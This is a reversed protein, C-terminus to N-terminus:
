PTVVVKLAGHAKNAAMEFAKAAQSLPLRHSIIHGAREAQSALLGLALEMDARPGRQCYGQSGIICVEKLVLPFAHLPQPHPFIGLVVIRGGPRVLSIAQQLTDAEGGVTEVVVDVPRSGVHGALTSLGEDSATFAHDAGVALAAQGQHLYRNTAIVEGAGMARAALVTLLGLSGAGLVVVREGFSLDALHLGHIAVALPEALVALGSDLGAPLKYAVRAPVRVYQALGGPTTVGILERRPCRQGQGSRCYECAGCGVFAGIAVRDGVAFGQVDRAVEVVHGSVEHGRAITPHAPLVGRYAHLDSGCIGCAQVQLRLDGGELGPWEVSRVEVRGPATIFAALMEAM